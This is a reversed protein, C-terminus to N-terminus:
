SAIRQHITHGNIARQINLLASVSDVSNSVRIEGSFFPPIVPSFKTQAKLLNGATIIM